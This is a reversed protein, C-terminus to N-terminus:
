NGRPNQMMDYAPIDFSYLYKNVIHVAASENRASFETLRASIENPLPMPAM